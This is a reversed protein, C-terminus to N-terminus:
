IGNRRASRALTAGESALRKARPESENRRTWAWAAFRLALKARSRRVVNPVMKTSCFLSVVLSPDARTYQTLEGEFLPVLKVFPVLRGNGEEEAVNAGVGDAVPGWDLPVDGLGVLEAELAEGDPVETGDDGHFTTCLKTLLIGM